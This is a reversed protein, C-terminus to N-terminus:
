GGAGVADAIWDLTDAIRALHRIDRRVLVWIDRAPLPAEVPVEILRPDQEAICRPLLTRGLGAVTAQYLTEADNVALYSGTRGTDACLDEIAQAHSLYQMSRDYRLWPADGTLSASQFVAYDWRGIQRALIDQSQGRPRALRIAVDAERRMLDLDRAEAILELAVQPLKLKWLPVKPLLMHNVVLPVSTVRVLGAMQAEGQDSLARIRAAAEEMAEAQTAVQYGFATLQIRRDGAQEMLPRGLDRELATLRRSVTTKDVGVIRAARDM